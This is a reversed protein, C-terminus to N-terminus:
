TAVEKPTLLKPFIEAILRKKKKEFYEFNSKSKPFAFFYQSFTKPEQPLQMPIQQAFNDRNRRSIKDDTTM